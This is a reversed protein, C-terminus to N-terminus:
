YQITIEGSLQDFKNTKTNKAFSKYKYTGPKLKSIMFEWYKIGKEDEALMKGEYRKNNLLVVTIDVVPSTKLTIRLSDEFSVHDEKLIVAETM